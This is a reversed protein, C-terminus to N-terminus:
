AALMAGGWLWVALPVPLVALAITAVTAAPAFVRTLGAALAIGGGGGILGNGPLNLLLALMVYRGGVALPALWDPLAARLEGLRATRDMTETREILRCARHLRLDAFLRHLSRYSLNQGAAYALLLGLVTALYVYPAVTDGRMVLLAVGIEIGPVFPVAILCAYILLFFAIAGFMMGTSIDEAVADAEGTAWDMAWALVMAAAVVIALRLLLRPVATRWRPLDEPTM